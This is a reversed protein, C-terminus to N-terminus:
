NKQVNKLYTLGMAQLNLILGSIRIRCTTFVISVLKWDFIDGPNSAAMQLEPWFQLFVVDTHVSKLFEKAQMIPM